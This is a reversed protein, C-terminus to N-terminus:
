RKTKFAAPGAAWLQRTAPDYRLVLRKPNTPDVALGYMMRRSGPQAPLQTWNHGGDLPKHWSVMGGFGDKKFWQMHVNAQTGKPIGAGEKLTVTVEFPGGPTWVEPAEVTCWDLETTKASASIAAVAFLAAAIPIRLLMRKM